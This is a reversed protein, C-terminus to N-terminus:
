KTAARRGTFSMRVETGGESTSAFEARDALASIVALGVGIRADSSALQRIGSGEDRVIIEIREGTIKLDLVLPGPEGGYAHLVVNNCAESVATKLDDLLAADFALLEGLGALICRVLTVLEPRSDLELRLTPPHEIVDAACFPDGAPKGFLLLAFRTTSGDQNSSRLGPSRTRPTPQSESRTDAKRSGDSSRPASHRCITPSAAPASCGSNLTSEAPRWVPADPRM